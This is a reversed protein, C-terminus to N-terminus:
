AQCSAQERICSSSFSLANAHLRIPHLRSALQGLASTSYEPSLEYSMSVVPMGHDVLEIAHFFFLDLWLGALSVVLLTTYHDLVDCGVELTICFLFLALLFSLWGFFRLTCPYLTIGPYSYVRSDPLYFPPLLLPAPLFWLRLRLRLLHSSGYIRQPRLIRTSATSKPPLFLWCHM